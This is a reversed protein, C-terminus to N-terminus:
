IHFGHFKLVARFMQEVQQLTVEPLELQELMRNAAVTLDESSDILTGDLDFLMAVRETM